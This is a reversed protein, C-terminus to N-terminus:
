CAKSMEQMKFNCNRRKNRRKDKFQLKEMERTLCGIKGTKLSIFTTKNFVYIIIKECFCLLIESISVHVCVSDGEM